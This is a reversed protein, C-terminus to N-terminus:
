QCHVIQSSTHSEPAQKIKRKKKRGSVLEDLMRNRRVHRRRFTVPMSLSLSLHSGSTSASPKLPWSITMITRTRGKVRLRSGIQKRRFMYMARMYPTNYMQNSDKGITKM